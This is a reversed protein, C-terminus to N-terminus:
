LSTTDPFSTKLYKFIGFEKLIWKNASELNLLAAYFELGGIETNLFIKSWEWNYTCLLIIGM